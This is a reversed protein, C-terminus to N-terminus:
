SLPRLKEHCASNIEDWSCNKEICIFLLYIKRKKKFMPVSNHLYHSYINYIPINMKQFDLKTM